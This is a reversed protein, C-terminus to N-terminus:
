SRHDTGFQTCGGIIFIGLPIWLFSPPLLFVYIAALAGCIAAAWIYFRYYHRHASSNDRGHYQKHTTDNYRQYAIVLGVFAALASTIAITIQLKEPISLPESM